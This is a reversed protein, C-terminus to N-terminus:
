LSPQLSLTNGDFYYSLTEKLVSEGSVIWRKSFRKAVVTSGPKLATLAVAEYGIFPISNPVGTAIKNLSQTEYDVTSYGGCGVDFFVLAGNMDEVREPILEFFGDRGLRVSARLILMRSGDSRVDGSLLGLQILHPTVNVIMNEDLRIVRDEANFLIGETPQSPRHDKVYIMGPSLGLSSILQRDVQMTLCKMICEQPTADTKM